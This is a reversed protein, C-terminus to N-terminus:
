LESEARVKLENFYEKILSKNCTKSKSLLNHIKAGSDNVFSKEFHLSVLNGKLSHFMQELTIIDSESIDIEQKNLINEILKIKENFNKKFQIYIDDECM